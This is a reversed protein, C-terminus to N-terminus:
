ALQWVGRPTQNAPRLVGEKRLIDAAWRVEYQWKYFLDGASQIDSGHHQWVHKCVDLLTSSGGHDHLAEEVWTTMSTRTIGPM